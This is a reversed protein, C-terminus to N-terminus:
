SLETPSDLQVVQMVHISRRESIFHWPIETPSDLQVDIEMHLLWQVFASCVDVHQEAGKAHPIIAHHSVARV